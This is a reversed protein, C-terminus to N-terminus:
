GGFWSIKRVQMYADVTTGWLEVLLANGTVDVGGLGVGQVLMLALFAGMYPLWAALLTVGGALFLSIGLLYRKGMRKEAWSSLVSGALYGSGRCTFAAGLRTEPVHFTLALAPVSPGTVGVLGGLGFYAVCAVGTLVLQLFM